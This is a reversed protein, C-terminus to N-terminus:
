LSRNGQDHDRASEGSYERHEEGVSNKHRRAIDEKEEEGVGPVPVSKNEPPSVRNCDQQTQAYHNFSQPM